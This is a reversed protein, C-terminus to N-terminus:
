RIVETLVRWDKLVMGDFILEVPVGKLKTADDVKADRMIERLRTYAKAHEAEWSEQSYSAGKPYTSWTGIFQGVGGSGEFSFSLSLGFMAGDYGGRGIHAERIFGLKKETGSM